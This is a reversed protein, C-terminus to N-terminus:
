QAWKNIICDSVLEMKIIDQEPYHEKVLKEVEEYTNEDGVVVYIPQSLAFRRIVKIIKM